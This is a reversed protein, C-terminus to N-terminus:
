VAEGQLERYFWGNLIASVSYTGTLVDVFVFRGDARTVVERRWNTDANTLTVAVAPVVGGLANVIVGSVQATVGHALAPGANFLAACLPLAAALKRLGESM